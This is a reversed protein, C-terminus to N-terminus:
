QRATAEAIEEMLVSNWLSLHASIMHLQNERAGKVMKVKKPFSNQDQPLEEM